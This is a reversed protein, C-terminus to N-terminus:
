RVFWLRTIFLTCHVSYHVSYQVSYSYASKLVWLILVNSWFPLTELTFVHVWLIFVKCRWYLIYPYICANLTAVVLDTIHIFATLCINFQMTTAKEHPHKRTADSWVVGLRGDKFGLIIWSELDVSCLCFHM